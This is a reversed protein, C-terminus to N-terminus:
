TEFLLFYIKSAIHFNSSAQALPPCPPFTTSGNMEKQQLRYNFWPRHKM